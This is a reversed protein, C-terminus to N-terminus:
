RYKLHAGKKPFIEVRTDLYKLDYQNMKFLHM